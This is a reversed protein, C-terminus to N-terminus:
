DDGKKDNKGKDGKKGKPPQPPPPQPEVQAPPPPTPEVAPGLSLSVTILSGPQLQASPGPEQRAVTDPPYTGDNMREGEALNLGAAGAIGRAEELTKGLLEPVAVSQVQLAPLPTANAELRGAGGFLRPWALALGLLVTLLGAVLLIPVVPARREDMVPSADEPPVYPATAAAPMASAAIAPATASRVPESPVYPIPVVEAPARAALTPAEWSSAEALALPAASAGDPEGPAVPLGALYVQTAQASAAELAAVERAVEGASSFSDQRGPRTREVLASVPGPLTIGELKAPDVDGALMLAFLAGLARPDDQPRASTHDGALGEILALRADGDTSVGKPGIRVAEHSFRWSTLGADRCCQLAEAAQRTVSLVAALDAPEGPGRFLVQPPDGSCREMVSYLRGDWRGADYVALVSCHHITSAVQQHRLFRAAAAKSARKSLVQVSVPRDLQSDRADFIEVDGHSGSRREVLYRGEILQENSIQVL